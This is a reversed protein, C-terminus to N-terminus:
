GKGTEKERCLVADVGALTCDQPIPNDSACIPVVVAIQGKLKIRRNQWVNQRVRKVTYQEVSRACIQPPFPFILTCVTRENIGQSLM